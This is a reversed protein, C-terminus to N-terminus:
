DTQDQIIRVSAEHESRHSLGYVIPKGDHEGGEPTKRVAARFSNIVKNDKNLKQVTVREGREVELQKRKLMGWFDDLTGVYATERLKKKMEVKVEDELGELKKEVEYTNM